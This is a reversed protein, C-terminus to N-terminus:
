AAREAAFRDLETRKVAVVDKCVKKVTARLRGAKIAIYLAQPTVGLERAAEPITVKSDAPSAM